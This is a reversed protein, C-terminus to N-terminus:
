SYEKIHYGVQVGRLQNASVMMIGALNVLHQIYQDGEHAWGKDFLEDPTQATNTLSDILLLLTHLFSFLLPPLSTKPSENSDILKPM